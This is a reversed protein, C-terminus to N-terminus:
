NGDPHCFYCNRSSYEYGNIGSHESDMEAKSHEHCSICSFEYYNSTQHCDSCLLHQHKGSYVPFSHSFAAQSWSYSEKLHCLSCDTSFGAQKHDPDKAREYDDLHCSICDSSIGYGQSHCRSCDHGLHPGRLLWFRNHDLVAGGWDLANDDHCNECDTSYGVSPHNPNKTKNYQDMHCSECSSDIRMYQNNKHCQRCDSTRHEGKLLFGTERLHSWSGPKLIKWDVPTHCEACHFGFQLQHPSDKKRYLHCAECDSPTGAMVGKKHCESCSATKHKGILPFNTKDHTVSNWVKNYSAFYLGSLLLFLVLLHFPRFLKAKNRGIIKNNTKEKM